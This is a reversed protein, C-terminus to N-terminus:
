KTKHELHLAESMAKDEIIFVDVLGSSRSAIFGPFPNGSFIGTFVDVHNGKIASGTDGAFFYGDHKVKQGNPLEVLMGRVSPVYLVTGYPIIAKDVAITRYPILKYNKVGTGFGSSIKWRVKGWEEVALKSASYAACKRCDVQAKEGRGAFNLVVTKGSSDKVWATGELAAKCFNCTDAYLNSSQGNVYLLPIKGGSNFQHIYYQTAWVSLSKLTSISDQAPLAFQKQGNQAFCERGLLLALFWLAILIRKM